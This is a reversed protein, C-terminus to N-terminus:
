SFIKYFAISNTFGCVFVQKKDYLINLINGICNFIKRTRTLSLRNSYILWDAVCSAAISFIWMAIYPLSSLIGNQLFTLHDNLYSGCLLLPWHAQFGRRSECTRKRLFFSVQTIDVHLVQRMFSPLETMLMEYGYNHGMHALLIGWFPLSTAIAKWPILSPDQFKM